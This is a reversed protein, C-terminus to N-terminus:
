GGNCNGGIICILAIILGIITGIITGKDKGDM